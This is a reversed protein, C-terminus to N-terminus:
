KRGQSAIADSVTLILKALTRYAVPREQAREKGAKYHRAPTDDVKSLDPPAGWTKGQKTLGLKAAKKRARVARKIGALRKARVEPTQLYSLDTNSKKRRAM